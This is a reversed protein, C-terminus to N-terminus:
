INENKTEAERLFEVVRDHFGDVLSPDLKQLARAANLLGKEEALKFLEDIIEEKEKQDADAINQETAKLKESSVVHEPSYIEEPKQQLHEKVVEKASQPFEVVKEKLHKWDEAPTIKQEFHNIEAM